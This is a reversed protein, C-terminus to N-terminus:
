EDVMVVKARKKVAIEGNLYTRKWVDGQEDGEGELHFRVGPYLASLKKMDSDHSYWKSPEMNNGDWGHSFDEDFEGPYGVFWAFEDSVEVMAKEIGPQPPDIELTYRTYYGV